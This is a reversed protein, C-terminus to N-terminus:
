FEKKSFLISCLIICVTSYVVTYIIPVTFSVNGSELFDRFNMFQFNPTIYFFVKLLIKLFVNTIKSSLFKMETGFHGLIWFFITFVISAVASTSFLSFFLALTSILIIKLIIGFIAIFYKLDTEWGVAQLFVFHLVVMIVLGVVVTLIMGFYRGLMYDMRKLPRSLLLYITKSEVEELVLSVAVFISVLLGFIEIAGLGLDLLLRIQEDGALAGFLINAGIITMAFLLLVYFVKNRINEKVTYKAIAIINNMNKKDSKSEQM